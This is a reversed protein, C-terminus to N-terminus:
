ARGHTRASCWIGAAVGAAETVLLLVATSGFLPRWPTAVHSVHDIGQVLFHNVLGFVLAAAMTAAVVIAGAAPRVRSYALGAIPGIEIVLVVFALAAPALSVAAGLHAVGHALTVGLHVFVITTLTIRAHSEM